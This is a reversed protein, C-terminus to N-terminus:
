ANGVGIIHGSWIEEIGASSKIRLAGGRSIGDAIGCVVREGCEIRVSKGRLYDRDNWRPLQADLGQNLFDALGRELAIALNAGWESMELDSAGLSRLSAMTQADIPNDFNVGIGVLLITDTARRMTEILIGGLKKGDSSMLDNPWKLQVLVGAGELLEAIVSGVMLSFGSLKEGHAGASLVFTAYFGGPASTWVRGDRGRGTKQERAIICFPLSEEAAGAMERAVNMTSDACDRAAVVWHPAGESFASNIEQTFSTSM